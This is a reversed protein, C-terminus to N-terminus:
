STSSAGFEQCQQVGEKNVADVETLSRTMMEQIAGKISFRIDQAPSQALSPVPSDWLKVWGPSATRDTCGPKPPPGPLHWYGMEPISFEM